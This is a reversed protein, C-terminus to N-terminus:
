YWSDLSIIFKDSPNILYKHEKFEVVIGNEEISVYDFVIPLLLVGDELICGYRKNHSVVAIGNKFDSIWDYQPEVVINCSTDSVGYKTSSDTTRIIFRGNQVDGYAEVQESFVLKDGCGNILAYEIRDIDEHYTAVFGYGNVFGYAEDFKCPIVVKGSQDVYGWKEKSKVAIYQGSQRIIFDCYPESFVIMRREDVDFIGELGLEDNYLCYYEGDGHSYHEKEIKYYEPAIVYEGCKDIIGYLLRGDAQTKGVKTIGNIFPYADEWQPAIGLSGDAHMYGYAKGEKYLFLYEDLSEGTAIQPWLILYVMFVTLGIKNMYSRKRQEAKDIM